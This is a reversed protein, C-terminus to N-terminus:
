SASHPFVHISLPLKQYLMIFLGSAQNCQVIAKSIIIHKLNVMRQFNEKKNINEIPLYSNSGSHFVIGGVYMQTDLQALAVTHQAVYTECKLHTCLTYYMCIHMTTRKKKKLETAIYNYMCLTYTEM